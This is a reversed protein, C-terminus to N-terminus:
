VYEAGIFLPTNTSVTLTASTTSGALVIGTAFSRSRASLDFSFNANAAIKFATRPATGNAPLSAANFIHLYVVSATDNFGVVQLLNGPTTKVNLSNVLAGSDAWTTGLSVGAVPVFPATYLRGYQDVMVPGTSGPTIATPSSNYQGGALFNFIQGFWAAM